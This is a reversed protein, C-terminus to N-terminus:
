SVDYIASRLQAMDHIIVKNSEVKVGIPRLKALARSFSEPTMGLHTAVFRKDFPLELVESGTEHTCLSLLFEAVREHTSRMRSLTIQEVLSKLKLSMSALMGLALEPEVTIAHRLAQAEVGLLRTPAGAQAAAPFGQSLFIAAEAFIEGKTFLGVIADEGRRTVRRLGVWGSLVLYFRNAPDGANFIIEGKRFTHESLAGRIPSIKKPDLASFLPTKLLLQFDSDTIPM